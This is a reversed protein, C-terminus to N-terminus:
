HTDTFILELLSVILSVFNLGIVKKAYDKQKWEKGVQCWIWIEMRLVKTVLKAALQVTMTETVKTVQNFYKTLFM